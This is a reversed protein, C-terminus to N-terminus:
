LMPDSTSLTFLIDMGRHGFLQFLIECFGAPPYTKQFIEYWTKLPRKTNNFKMKISFNMNWEFLNLGPICSKIIKWIWTWRMTIYKSYKSIERRDELLMIKTSLLNQFAREINEILLCSKSDLMNIYNKM